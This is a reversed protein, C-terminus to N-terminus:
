GVLGGHHLWAPAAISTTFSAVTASAVDPAVAALTATSTRITATALAAAFVAASASRLLALISHCEVSKQTVYVAYEAYVHLEVSM